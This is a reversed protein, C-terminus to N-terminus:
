SVAVTYQLLFPQMCHTKLFIADRTIDSMPDMVDSAPGYTTPYLIWERHSRQVEDHCSHFLQSFSERRVM